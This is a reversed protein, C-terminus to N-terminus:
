NSEQLLKAIETVFESHDELKDSGIESRRIQDDVYKSILANIKGAPSSLFEKSEAYDNNWHRIYYEPSFREPTNFNQLEGKALLKLSESFLVDISRGPYDDRYSFQVSISFTNIVPHDGCREIVEKKWNALPGNQLAFTLVEESIIEDGYHERNFNEIKDTLSKFLFTQNSRIFVPYYDNTILDREEQNLPEKLFGLKTRSM